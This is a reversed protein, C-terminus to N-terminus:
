HIGVQKFQDTILPKPEMCDDHWLEKPWKCWFDSSQNKALDWVNGLLKRGSSGEKELAEFGFNTLDPLM